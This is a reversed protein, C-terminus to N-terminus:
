RTSPWRPPLPGGWSTVDADEGEGGIAGDRGLTVLDFSNPNARGPSYYFYWRGWPDTPITIDRYLYRWAWLRGGNLPQSRLSWLAQFDEPYSGNESFYQEIAVSLADVHGRAAENRGNSLSMWIEPILLIALTLTAITYVLTETAKLMRFRKM